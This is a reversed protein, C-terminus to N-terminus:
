QLPVFGFVSVGSRTPLILGLLFMGAAGVLGVTGRDRATDKDGGTEVCEQLALIVWFALHRYAEDSLFLAHGVTTRDFKWQGNVSVLVWHFALKASFGGVLIGKLIQYVREETESGVYISIVCNFTLLCILYFLSHSIWGNAVSNRTEMSGGISVAVCTSVIVTTAITLVSVDNMSLLVASGFISDTVVHKFSLIRSRKETLTRSAVSLADLVNVVLAVGQGAGAIYVPNPFKFDEYSSANWTGNFVSLSGNVYDRGGATLIVNREPRASEEFTFLISLACYVSGWFCSLCVAMTTSRYVM